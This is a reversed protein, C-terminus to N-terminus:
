YQNERDKGCVDRECDLNEDKTKGTESAMVMLACTFYGAWFMGCFGIVWLGLMM